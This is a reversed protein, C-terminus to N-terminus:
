VTVTGCTLKVVEVTSPVEEVTPRTGAVGLLEGTLVPLIGRGIAEDVIAVEDAYLGLALVPALGLADGTYM